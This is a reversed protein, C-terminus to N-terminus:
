FFNVDVGVSLILGLATQPIGMALALGAEEATLERGADEFEALSQASGMVYEQAGAGALFGYQLSAGKGSARTGAAVLGAETTSVGFLEGQAGRAKKVTDYAADLIRQESRSLAEGRGQQALVHKKVIDQMVEKTVKRSAISLAGKGLIQVAAGGLGTSISSLAIPTFQGIAKLVQDFFGGVTPAETFQEFTDFGSLLKSAMESHIKATNLNRETAKEDGTLLNYIAGFRQADGAIQEYGAAAADAFKEGVTAPAALGVDPQAMGTIVAAQATLMNAIAGGPQGVPPAVGGSRTMGPFVASFDTSSAVPASAVPASAVPIPSTVSDSDVPEPAAAVAETGPGQGLSALADSFKQARPPSDTKAWKSDLAEISAGEFDGAQMKAWTRDHELNWATGLQFNVSTLRGEDVAKPLQQNQAQAAAYSRSIDEEFWADVQDQPVKAGPPYKKLEEESLFHGYGASYGEADSYVDDRFGEEQKVLDQVEQPVNSAM